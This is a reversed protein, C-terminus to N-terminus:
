KKKCCQHWRASRCSCEIGVRREVSRGVSGFLGATARLGRDLQPQLSPLAPAETGEAVVRGLDSSCVDSGCQRQSRSQRKNSYLLLLQLTKMYNVQKYLM